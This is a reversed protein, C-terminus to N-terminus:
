IKAFLKPTTRFRAWCCILGGFIQISAMCIIMYKWTTRGSADFLAGGLPGAILNGPGNFLLLIGTNSALSNPGFITVVIQPMLGLYGPAILGYLCAFVCALAFSSVNLWLAFQIIGSIVFVGIYTNMAGIADSCFGVLGRGVAVSFSLIMLPATIMMPDTISPFTTAMYQNLFFFPAPYGIVGILLSIAVSWFESRSLIATNILKGRQRQAEPSGPRTRILSVAIVMATLNVFSMILLTKGAGVQTILRRVIIVSIGGGIGAGGMTIGSALGRYKYFWQSPLSLFLPVALGQGMGTIVGQCLITSWLSHSWSAGFLGAWCVVCSAILMPRFGLKDGLAGSFFACVSYMFGQTTGALSLVSTPATQFMNKAYYEQFVGYSMGWGNTLACLTMCCAVVVWGYGGDPYVYPEEEEQRGKEQDTCQCVEKEEEEATECCPVNKASKGSRQSVGSRTSLADEDDFVPEIGPRSLAFLAPRQGTASRTRERALERASHATAIRVLPGGGGVSAPDFVSVVDATPPLPSPTRQAPSRPCPPAPCLAPKTCLTTTTSLDTVTRTLRPNTPPANEVITPTPAPTPLPTDATSSSLHADGPLDEPVPSMRPSAPSPQESTM